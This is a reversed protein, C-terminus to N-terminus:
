KLYKREIAYKVLDNKGQLHLVRIMNQRHTNVTKLDIFLLNAIERSTKGQAIHSLIEKQRKTLKDKKQGVDTFDINEDFYTEGKAVTKIAELVKDLSINKLIYGSVGIDKAQKQIEPLDFMTLIIVKIHPFEKLILKAAELGDLKPMRYDAIVIQPQKLRVLKLLAEGDNVSGIISITNDFETVLKISDIFCQHDEAIVLRIM